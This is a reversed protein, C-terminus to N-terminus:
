DFVTYDKVISINDLYVRNNKMNASALCFYFYVHTIYSDEDLQELTGRKLMNEIPFAFWGKFGKVSSTQQEGFCGDNGHSMKKWEDTGDAMYWFPSPTDKEDTGYPIVTYNNVILGFCAKRMDVQTTEGTFDMWVRLYRNDGLLGPTEMSIRVEANNEQNSSGYNKRTVALAQTGDLGKDKVIEYVIQDARAAASTDNPWSSADMEPTYSDFDLVVGGPLPDADIVASEAGMKMEDVYTMYTKVDSPDKENVLFVRGGLMDMDCYGTESVTSCYCLKIGGYEVMYDNRHDHGSVVAKIDGRDVMAAFLGSNIESACVVERREGTYNLAERNIWANYFEQLPIHFAMMGPVTEGNYAEMEASTDTYWRVISPDIYDYTSNAYGQFTSAAPLYAAKEASTLYEGSDIAWINFLVSDGDHAYVPLVYNGVGPLNEDGAQSVCYEFSEYIEQQKEKKLNGGECDHNGYVHAWPIQKEELIDVMSTVANKLASESTIGWTNDGDFMVFDPQEREILLKMNAKALGSIEGSIHMDSLVLIKFEGDENFQLRHKSETWPSDASATNQERTESATDAEIHQVSVEGSGTNDDSGCSVFAGGAVVAALLGAALKQTSYKM